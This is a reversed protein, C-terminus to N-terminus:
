KWKNNEYDWKSAVGEIPNQRQRIMQETQKEKWEETITGPLELYVYKKIWILLWGTVAIGAITAAVIAKWEGTPAKLEAFTQCFSARYLTKKEEVSLNKWDGKEKERLALIEDTNERFRVPPCPFEERDMYGYSGNWGYGVIDRNGLKPYYKDRNAQTMENARVASTTLARASLRPAVRAVSRVLQNAM